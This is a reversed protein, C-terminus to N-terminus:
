KIRPTVRQRLLKRVLPTTPLPLTGLLARVPRLIALQDCCLRRLRDGLHLRLRRLCSGLHLHLRCLRDGLQLSIDNFLLTSVLAQQLLPESINLCHHLLPQRRHAIAHRTGFSVATIATFAAWLSRNSDTQLAGSSLWSMADFTLFARLPPLALAALLALATFRPRAALCARRAFVSQGDDTRLASSALAARLSQSPHGTLTPQLALAPQSALAPQLALTSLPTIGAFSTSSTNRPKLALRPGRARGTLDARRTGAPWHSRLTFAALAALFAIRTLAAVGTLFAVSTLATLFAVSTLLALLAESAKRTRWARLTEITLAPSVARRPTIASRTQLTLLPLASRFPRRAFQRDHFGPRGVRHEVLAINDHM